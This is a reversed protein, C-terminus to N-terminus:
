ATSAGPLSDATRNVLQAAGQSDLAKDKLEGSQTEKGSSESGLRNGGKSRRLWV